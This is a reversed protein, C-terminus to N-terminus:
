PAKSTCFFMPATCSCTTGGSSSSSTCVSAIPRTKVRAGLGGSRIDNRQRSRVAIGFSATQNPNFDIVFNHTSKRGRTSSQFKVRFRQFLPAPWLIGQRGVDLAMDVTVAKLRSLHHQNWRKAQRDLDMGPTGVGLPEIFNGMGVRQPHM